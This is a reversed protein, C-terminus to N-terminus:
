AENDSSDPTPDSHRRRSLRHHEQEETMASEYLLRLHKALEERGLKHAHEIADWLKDTLRRAPREDSMAM